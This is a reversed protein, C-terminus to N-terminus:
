ISGLPVPQRTADANRLEANHNNEVGADAGGILGGGMLDGLRLGCPELDVLFEADLRFSSASEPYWAFEPQLGVRVSPGACAMLSM